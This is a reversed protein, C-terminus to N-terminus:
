PEDVAGRQKLLVKNIESLGRTNQIVAGGMILTGNTVSWLLRVNCPDNEKTVEWKLMSTEGGTTVLYDGESTTSWAIGFIGGDFNQLHARCQGTAVDWLRVSWDGSGSALLDGQKSYAVHIVKDSHGMLTLHSEGTETHWLRIVNDYGASALQNGQPSYAIGRIWNTHGVLIQCCEGTEADWVRVTSDRSCSAIRNGDPSYAVGMVADTHGDMTRLWVGDAVNWLRVTMDMSASAVVGGRPSFAVGYIFGSHGTLTHRCTGTEVNWLCVSRDGSGSAIQDGQPSYAVSFVTSSHGTLIQRCVGTGADWLRITRDLSCSAITDNQPSWKVCYTAATHGSSSSRSEGISIDWLRVTRDWDCSAIQKGSPSFAVDTVANTHGTLTQSCFGSEVNWLRVTLDAGSSAALDGNPSYVIRLIESTHGTLILRCEGTEADWLRITRDKSASAIQDGQPSYAVSRVFDTHGTLIHSCEGTEANWLRITCDVSSSAFQQGKPSYTVSLVQDHHGSLTQLCDGTAVNWLRVTMDASASAVRYGRPSYAVGHVTQTHGSLTHQLSGSESNWLRVTGDFSSSAIQKSDPSYSVTWVLYEHGKLSRIKEWNSTAYVSIDCEVAVAFSKGDPSYACSYTINEEKLSPLEGFKVGSMQAGGLDAQRMWVGRLNVKRLDADRMQASDFVGYSLDAGPIQIGQLDSDIFQVGAKVLITIANSAATRWMKDRKSQEIYALLQQKFIPAQPVRESLFQVVSPENVFNRWVLPSESDLSPEEDARSTVDVLGGEVEFSWVSSMSGRRSMTRGTAARTHDQPEFVARALGYELLSRHIFRYQGGNRVLPCAERLLQKEENRSFFEVKWTREDNFRSYEVVPQGDQEKYIAVSLKKLYDIGNMTFGEDSLSDFASREQFSLQREEVRKKGRELWQEIFQDYLALKTIHTASIHEGPDMMRPLVELSMTLLFPNKVLDMLGPILDLAQIYNETEWLPRCLTVYQAIYEQIQDTSFPTIVAEQFLSRQSSRRNRDVPEFRDRYDRGIYESRCSIIMKAIWEGEENLQNSTYLNRTQQSEDYGDCILIFKRYKLERIQPETFDLKRLQKTVLDHDPKDISPLNIYLPIVGTNKNYRQWLECELSRNFMSKGAGSDGLILLVTQDGSLFENVKDMLPFRSEDPAQLNAKAQPSIYVVNGRENIMRKKLQRLSSEVDPKNQVRDLLLSTELPPTDFRLPHSGPGEERCSQYQVRKAADGNTELEQLLSEAGQAVSGTLTSIQMLIRVVWQKVSAQRGWKEDDKYIEGLFTIASRRTETDLMTDAAIEGLRQCVGWQFAPDNRCPAENILKELKVFQRERIFVDAGRLAPYWERKHDFSLGEQLSDMIDKGDKVLSTVEKHASKAFRVAESAESFAEQINKLGEILKNLDLGKVATVMGSVGQIVKGTRRMTGQWLTENDPVYQLAQYAYAAQYILYPDPNKKLKDLYSLLPEHLTERDLGSVNTDAMADLVHSMTATLQYIHHPSQRHTDMSRTSLLKLAKVLDDADLYGPKAGQILQALGDLQHIVLLGSQDIMTLFDRLINRYTDKDLVPVLYLVETIATTDKLEDRKFERIVDTALLKLREQEDNNEATSQFWNRTTIDVIEDPKFTSQLLSLCYALEITSGIREDPEPLNVVLASPQTNEVFIQPPIHVIADNQKETQSNQPPQNTATADATNLSTNKVSRTTKPQSLRGTKQTNGRWQEANRYSARAKDSQGLSDQLDGLDSYTVTIRERFTQATTPELSALTSARKIQALMAGADHCLEQAVELDKTKHATALCVNACELSQQPSLPIRSPAAGRFM